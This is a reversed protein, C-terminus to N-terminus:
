QSIGESSAVTVLEKTVLEDNEDISVEPVRQM